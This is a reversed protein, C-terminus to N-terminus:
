GSLRYPVRARKDYPAHLQWLRGDRLLRADIRECALRERQV